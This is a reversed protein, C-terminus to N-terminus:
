VNLPNVKSTGLIEELDLLFIKDEARQHGVVDIGRSWRGHAVLVYDGAAVDEQEPGVFAVEFWRPRISEETGDQDQLILGSATKREGYGEIMRALVNKHLPKINKITM